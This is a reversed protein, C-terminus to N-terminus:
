AAKKQGSLKRMVFQSRRKFVKRCRGTAMFEDVARTVGDDWNGTYHYDDCVIFGGPKVKPYYNELDEKVFEYRHNGDIYIWDFYEDRFDASAAASTSRHIAVTGQRVNDAFRASVSEYLAQRDPDSFRDSAPQWPDILHLRQPETIELIRSSFKGQNVGIEACIGHRPMGRLVFERAEEREPRRFLFAIRWRAWM